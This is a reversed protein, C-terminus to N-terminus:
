VIGLLARPEQPLSSLEHASKRNDKQARFEAKMKKVFFQVINKHFSPKPEYHFVLHLVM